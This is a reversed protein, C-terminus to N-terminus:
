LGSSDLNPMKLKTFLGTAVHLKELFLFVDQIEALNELCCDKWLGLITLPTQFTSALLFRVTRAVIECHSQAVKLHPPGISVPEGCVCVKGQNKNLTLM